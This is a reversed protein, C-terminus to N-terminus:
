KLWTSSQGTPDCHPCPITKKSDLQGSSSSRVTVDFDTGILKENIVEVRAGHALQVVHREGPALYANSRLGFESQEEANGCPLVSIPEHGTAVSADVTYILLGKDRFRLDDGLSQAVEIICLQSTHASPLVIM